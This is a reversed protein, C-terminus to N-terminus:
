EKYIYLTGQYYYDPKNEKYLLSVIFKGAFVVNSAKSKTELKARRKAPLLKGVLAKRCKWDRSDEM